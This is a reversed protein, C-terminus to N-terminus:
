CFDGVLDIGYAILLYNRLVSYVIIFILFAVNYILRVRSFIYQGKSVIKVIDFVAMMLVDIIFLIVIPNYRMSLLIDGQLLAVVARTGGCGPCYLQFNSHFSCESLFVNKLFDIM